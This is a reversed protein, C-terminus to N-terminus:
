MIYIISILKGKYCSCTLERLEMGSKSKFSKNPPKKISSIRATLFVLDQILSLSRVASM